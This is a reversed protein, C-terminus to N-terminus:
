ITSLSDLNTSKWGRLRRIATEDTERQPDEESRDLGRLHDRERRPEEQLLSSSGNEELFTEEDWISSERSNHQSPHSLRSLDAVFVYSLSTDRSFRFLVCRIGLVSEVHRSWGEQVCESRHRPSTNSGQLLARITRRLSSRHSSRITPRSGGRRTSTRTSLERTQFYKSSGSRTRTRSRTRPRTRSSGRQSSASSGRGTSSSRLLCTQSLLLSPLSSFCDALSVPRSFLLPLHSFRCRLLRSSHLRSSLLVLKFKCSKKSGCGEASLYFICPANM